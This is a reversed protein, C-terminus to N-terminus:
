SQCSAPHALCQEKTTPITSCSSDLGSIAEEQIEGLRFVFKKSEMSYVSYLLLSSNSGQSSLIATVSTQAMVENASVAAAQIMATQSMIVMIIGWIMGPSNNIITNFLNFLGKLIYLTITGDDINGKKKLAPKHKKFKKLKSSRVSSKRTYVPVSESITNPSSVTKCINDASPINNFQKDNMTQNTELKRNRVSSSSKDNFFHEDNIDAQPPIIHDYQSPPISKKDHRDAFSTFLMKLDNVSNKMESIDASNESM